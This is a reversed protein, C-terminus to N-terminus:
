KNNYSADIILGNEKKYAGTYTEKGVEISVSKLAQNNM